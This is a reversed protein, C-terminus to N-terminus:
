EEKQKFHWILYAVGAVALLAVIIYKYYDLYSLIIHWNEGTKYGLYTLISNWVFSGIVTLVSFLPVPMEVIGAPISILSRIIPVCRGILVFIKGKKEFQEVVTLIEKRKFGLKKMWGREASDYIKETPLLPGIGYLIYAGFLSGATASLITPLFNLNGRGVFFGGLLLIVESPIPPFVNELFILAFVAFYGYSEIASVIISEM